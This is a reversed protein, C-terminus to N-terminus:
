ARHRLRVWDHCNTPAVETLIRRYERVWECSLGAALAAQAVTDPAFSSTGPYVWEQDRSDGMLEGNENTFRISVVAVGDPALSAKTSAMFQPLQWEAAHSLISHSLVYDFERGGAAFDDNFLFTPHKANVLDRLGDGETLAAELLWVNPEIGTYRGDDLFGMVHKGAVLAGCGIELVTKDPALGNITLLELQARGVRHAQAGVNGVYGEALPLRQRRQIRFRGIDLPM